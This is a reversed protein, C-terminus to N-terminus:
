GHDNSHSASSQLGAAQSSLLTIRSKYLVVLDLRQARQTRLGPVALRKPPECLDLSRHGCPQTSVDERAQHSACAKRVGDSSFGLLLQSALVSSGTLLFLDKTFSLQLRRAKRLLRNDEREQLVRDGPEIRAQSFPDFM